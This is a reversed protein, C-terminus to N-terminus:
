NQKRVLKYEDFPNFYPCEGSSYFRILEDEDLNMDCYEEDEQEDYIFWSCQSCLPYKNQM